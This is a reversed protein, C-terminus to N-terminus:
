KSTSPIMFEMANGLIPQLPPGPLKDMEAFIRKDKALYKRVMARLFIYFLGIFLTILFIKIEVQTSPVVMRLLELIM